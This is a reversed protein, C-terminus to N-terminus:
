GDSEGSIREPPPIILVPIISHSRVRSVVSGSLWRSLGSKGRTSMIILDVQNDKAYNLIAEAARGFVVATQVIMGEKKLKDALQSLYNEAESQDQRELQAVWDGALEAYAVYASSPIPEVVRILIVEPVQCDTAIARVHELSCESLESGDLPALIKKYM